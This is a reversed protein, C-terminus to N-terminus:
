AKLAQVNIGSTLNFGYVYYLRQKETLMAFIQIVYSWLSNSPCTGAFM